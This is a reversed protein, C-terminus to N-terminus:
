FMKNCLIFILINMNKMMLGGNLLKRIIHIIFYLFQTDIAFLLSRIQIDKSPFIFKWVIM